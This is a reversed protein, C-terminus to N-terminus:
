VGQRPKYLETIDLNSRTLQRKVFILAKKRKKERKKV